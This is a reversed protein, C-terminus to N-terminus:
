MIERHFHGRTDSASNFTPEALSGDLKGKAAEVVARVQEADETTFNLRFAEVGRITNMEDLLNLLKGNLVTTTCDDHALLPFSGFEDKIEYSHSRCQGCQGMKKLPCYKTVLLPARGYVVMELAADAGQEARYAAVLAELQAQTLEYSLTVRRAGLRHLLAVTTANVVNLSYDTVFPNTAAYRQIGGMGGILLPGQADKYVNGNRPITRVGQPADALADSLAGEALYVV